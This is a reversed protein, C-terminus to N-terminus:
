VVSFGSVTGSSSETVLYWDDHSYNDTFGNGAELAMWHSEPTGSHGMLVTAPGENYIVFAWRNQPTIILVQNSDIVQRAFEVRKGDAIKKDSM